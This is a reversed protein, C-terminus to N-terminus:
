DGLEVVVPIGTDFWYRHLEKIKKRSPLGRLHLACEGYDVLHVTECIADRARELEAPDVIERAVAAHTTWGLRLHVNPEARINWM